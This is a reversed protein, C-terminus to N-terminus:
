RGVTELVVAGISPVVVEFGLARVARAFPEPDTSMWHIAVTLGPRITQVAEVAREIPMTFRGDIPLFALDVPGLTAMEPILDTDGAHYLRLGGATVLYGVGRGKPHALRDGPHQDQVNYAPVVEVRFGALERCVGPVVVEVPCGAKVRCRRPGVVVSSPTSLHGITLPKCHDEHDHTLLILAAPPLAEPLGDIPGPWRSLEIHGPHRLYYTRLYAPDIYLVAADMRIQVWSPPFWRM